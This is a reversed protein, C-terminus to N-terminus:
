LFKIGAKLGNVGATTWAVATDPDVIRIDECFGFTPAAPLATSAGYFSTSAPRTVAQANTITGDRGAYCQVQVATLTGVPPTWPLAGLTYTEEGPAITENYDTTSPPIEDVNQWNPNGSSSTFSGVDNGDPVIPPMFREPIEGTTSDSVLIDDYYMFGNAGGIGFQDWNATTANKTDGSFTVLLVGDVKVNCVGGADLADLEISWWHGVNMNIAVTSTAVITGTLLGRRLNIFGSDSVEVSFTATSARYFVFGQQQRGDIRSWINLWRASTDFTPSLDGDDSFMSYNGGNGALSRHLNAVTSNILSPGSFAWGRATYHAKTGGEFGCMFVVAM